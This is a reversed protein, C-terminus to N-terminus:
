WWIEGCGLKEWGLGEGFVIRQAFAGCRNQPIPQNATGQLTAQRHATLQLEMSIQLNLMDTYYSHETIGTGSWNQTTFITEQVM